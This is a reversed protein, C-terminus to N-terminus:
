CRHFSYFNLVKNYIFEQKYSVLIPQVYENAQECNMQKAGYSMVLLHLKMEVM